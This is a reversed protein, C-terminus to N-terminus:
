LYIQEYVSLSCTRMWVMAKLVSQCADSHVAFDACSQERGAGVGYEWRRLSDTRAVVFSARKMAGALFAVSM